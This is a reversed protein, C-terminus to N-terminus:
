VEEAGAKMKHAKVIRDYAGNIIALKENAMGLLETPVGNAILKDPHNQAALEKWAKQAERSKAVLAPIQEIPTIPVSGVLEGNAPNISELITTTAMTM